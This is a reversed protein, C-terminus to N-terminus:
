GGSSGANVVDCHGQAPDQGGDGGEGSFLADADGLMEIWARGLASSTAWARARFYSGRQCRVGSGGDGNDSRSRQAAPEGKRSGPSAEADEEFVHHGHVQMMRLFVDM